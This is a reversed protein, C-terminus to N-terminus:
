GSPGTRPGWVCEPEEESTGRGSKQFGICGDRTTKEQNEVRMTCGSPCSRRFCHFKNSCANLGGIQTTSDLSFSRRRLTQKNISLPSRSSKHFAGSKEFSQAERSVVRLVDARTSMRIDCTKGCSVSNPSGFYLIGDFFTLISASELRFDRLSQGITSKCEFCGIKSENYYYYVDGSEYDVAISTVNPAWVVSEGKWEHPRMRFLGKSTTFYVRKTKPNVAVAKLVGFRTPSVFITTYKNPELVHINQGQTWYLTGNRWDWALDYPRADDSLPMAELDSSDTELPAIFLAYAAAKKQPKAIFIAKRAAYDYELAIVDSFRSQVLLSSTQHFTDNSLRRVDGKLITGNHSYLLFPEQETTEATVRNADWIWLAGLQLLVLARVHLRPM